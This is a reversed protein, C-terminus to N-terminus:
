KAATTYNNLEFTILIQNIKLTPQDKKIQAPPLLEKVKTVTHFRAM